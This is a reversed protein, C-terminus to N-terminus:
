FIKSLTYSMHNGCGVCHIKVMLWGVTWLGALALEWPDMNQQHWEQRVKKSSIAKGKEILFASTREQLLLM